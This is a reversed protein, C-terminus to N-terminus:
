RLLGTLTRGVRIVAIAVSAAALRSAAAQLELLLVADELVGAAEDAALLALALGVAVGTVPVITTRAAEDSVPAKM